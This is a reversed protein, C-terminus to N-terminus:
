VARGLLAAISNPRTDGVSRGVEQSGKGSELSAKFVILTSQSRVGFKRVIDKQADFDVRLMVMDKFKAEGALEMLIPIQAHCTPCWDAHVALLIAKGAKQAEEFAQLTFPTEVARAGSAPVLLLPAALLLRRTIM